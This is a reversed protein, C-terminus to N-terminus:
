AAPASWRPDSGVPFRTSALVIAFAADIRPEPVRSCSRVKRRNAGETGCMPATVNSRGPARSLFTSMRSMAVVPSLTIASRARSDLTFTRRLPMSPM